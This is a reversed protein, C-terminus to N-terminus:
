DRLEVLFLPQDFEVLSSDNALIERVVGKVGAYQPTFLKMVEILCVEDDPAVTDGVNVYPPAGPKPARYFTGLNCARVFVHGQQAETTVEQTTTAQQVQSAVAFAPTQSSAPAEIQTRNSPSTNGRLEIRAAQKRKSARLEFQPTALLMDTASSRQFSELIADIDRLETKV